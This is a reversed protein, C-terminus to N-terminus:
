IAQILYFDFGPTKACCNIVQELDRSIETNHRATHPLLLLILSSTPYNNWTRNYHQLQQKQWTAGPPLLACQVMYVPRSCYVMYWHVLTTYWHVLVGISHLLTCWTAVSLSTGLVQGVARWSEGLGSGGISLLYIWGM